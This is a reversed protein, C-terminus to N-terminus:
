IVSAPNFPVKSQHDALILSGDLSEVYLGQAELDRGYRSLQHLYESEFVTQIREPTIPRVPTALEQAM